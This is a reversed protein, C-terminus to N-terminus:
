RSRHQSVRKATEAESGGRRPEASMSRQTATISRSGRPAILVPGEAERLVRTSVSGLIMRKPAGLRRSGLALLTPQSKKQRAVSLVALAPEGEALKTEPRCRAPAELREPRADLVQLNQLRAEDLELRQRASRGGVPEAPHRYARVFIVETGFADALEMALGGAKMAALSGDDGVVIRAPPWAQEGGRVVLVPCSARHVVGESVSGTILRKIRGGGRRGVVVLEAELREAFFIIEEAPGGERLHHGAVSGGAVEANWVQRRLLERAEEKAQRSYDDFVLAPYAPPPVDTWVHVVHLQAGTKRSIDAAAQGALAADSSGDTALLITTLSANM